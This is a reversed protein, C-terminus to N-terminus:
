VNKNGVKKDTPEFEEKNASLYGPKNISEPEDDQNNGVKPIKNIMKRKLFASFDFSLNLKTRIKKVM